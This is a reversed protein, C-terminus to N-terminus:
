YCATVRSSNGRISHLAFAPLGSVKPWIQRLLEKRFRWLKLRKAFSKANLDQFLHVNFIENCPCGAQKLQSDLSAVDNILQMKEDSDDMAGLQRPFSFAMLPLGACLLASLYPPYSLCPDCGSRCTQSGSRQHGHQLSFFYFHSPPVCRRHRRRAVSV